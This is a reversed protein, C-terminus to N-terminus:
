SKVSPIKSETATSKIMQTEKQNTGESNKTQPMIEAQTSMKKKIYFPEGEVIKSKQITNQKIIINQM